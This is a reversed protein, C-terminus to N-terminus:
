RSDGGFLRYRRLRVEIFRDSVGFDGALAAIVGALAEPPTTAPLVRCGPRGRHPAHTMPLRESRARAVLRLHLPHPPVLLAGMFENARRESRATAGDLCNPGATVSRYRRTPEAVAPPVDFVIHGLEHAVTSLELDPRNAIMVGNVSVLALGPASPDTECIGLVQRGSADHVHQSFDWNSAIQRGNVELRSAAAVLARASLAWPSGSEVVAQRVSAAVAWLAESFLPQPAGTAAHHPYTLALTM